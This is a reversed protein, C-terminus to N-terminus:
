AGDKNHPNRSFTATNGETEQVTVTIGVISPLLNRNWLENKVITYLFAAMNEATPNWDTIVLSQNIIDMVMVKIPRLKESWRETRIDSLFRSVPDAKWLLLRHDWNTKIWNDWFLKVDGFDVVMGLGNLVNSQLTLTFVYNHGHIHACAGKHNNLRHAICASTNRNVTFM